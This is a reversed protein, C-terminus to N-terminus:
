ENNLSKKGQGSHNSSAYHSPTDNSSLSTKIPLAPTDSDSIYPPEDTFCCGAKNGNSVHLQNSQIIPAFDKEASSNGIYATYVWNNKAVPVTIKQQHQFDNIHKEFILKVNEQIDGKEPRSYVRLVLDNNFISPLLSHSNNAGLNWYIYLQRPNIALLRLNKINSITKPSYYQSINQSVELLERSTLSKKSVNSVKKLPATPTYKQSIDYAISLMEAKSLSATITNRSSYSLPM